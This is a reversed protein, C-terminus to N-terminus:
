LPRSLKDLSVDSIGFFYIAHQHWFIFQMYATM